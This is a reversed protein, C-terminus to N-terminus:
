NFTNIKHLLLKIILIIKQLLNTFKLYFNGEINLKVNFSKPRMGEVTCPSIRFLLATEQDSIFGIIAGNV